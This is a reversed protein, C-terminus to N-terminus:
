ATELEDEEPSAKLMLIGLLIAGCTILIDAVNFIPWSWKDYYHLHIFDIVYGRMLRESLNGIAGSLVLMLSFLWFMSDNRVKWILVCLFTIAVLSLSYIIWQRIDPEISSLMSFAIATNETYRLELYNNVVSVPASHKLQNQAIWKTTLDCSTCFIVLLALLLIKLNRSNV